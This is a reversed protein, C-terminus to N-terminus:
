SHKRKNQCLLIFDQILLFGREDMQHYTDIIFGKLPCAM